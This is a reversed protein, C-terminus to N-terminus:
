IIVPVLRSSRCSPRILPHCSPLITRFWTKPNERYDRPYETAFVAACHIALLGYHYM